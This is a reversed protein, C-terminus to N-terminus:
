DGAATHHTGEPLSADETRPTSAFACKALTEKYWEPLGATIGRKIHPWFHAMLKDMIEERCEKLVDHPVEKILEGIDRPSGQITGAEKLHQVAKMWRAETKYTSILSQVVDTQTPNSKKWEVEHKEKFAESVYKGVAIKKEPTFVNYNKVVVGEVTCGGLVSEMKLFEAFQNFSSVAGSHLLPVCELGIRRAEEAKQQPMLYQEQGTCIDFIMLHGHPIRAYSLTNHKPSQLYEARYIWGDALPLGQATEVARAFMKEPASPIIDKGKSRCVFEGNIRGFSFQSGDIKEEVLVDGTFIEAIAKHGLAFVSPYSGVHIM